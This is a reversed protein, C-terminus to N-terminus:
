SNIKCIGCEGKLEEMDQLKIIITDLEDNFERELRALRNYEKKLSHLLNKKEHLVNLLSSKLSEKIHNAEELTEVSCLVRGGCIIEKRRGDIWLIKNLKEEKLKELSNFSLILPLVTEIVHTIQEHKLCLRQEEVKRMLSTSFQNENGKIRLYIDLTKIDKKAEEMKEPFYRKYIEPPLKAYTEPYDKLHQLALKTYKPKPLIEREVSYSSKYILAKFGSAINRVHRYPVIRKKLAKMSSVTRKLASEYRPLAYLKKRSSVHMAVVQKHKQFSELGRTVRGDTLGTKKKIQTWTVATIGEVALQNFGDLIRKDRIQSDSTQPM